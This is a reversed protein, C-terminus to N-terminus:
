KKWAGNSNLKYGDITTDHAMAGSSYFYYWSGNIQKWGTVMRADQPDLYYWNGNILKWGKVRVGSDPDMYYWDSEHKVWGTVMKGSNDFFYWLGDICQWGVLMEGKSNFRYWNGSIEKWGKVMQGSTDLYYWINNLQKWGTVMQGSADFYYWINDIQKWGSAVLKANFTNLYYWNGDIQKWGKIRAGTAPDMYYWDSGHRVWGTVMKGSDDFYYWLNDICQWGTLMEGNSNFRYTNGNLQKWGTVMYGKVDFYFWKGKIQKWCSFPYSGDSYNFWWGNNDQVWKGPKSIEVPVSAYDTEDSNNQKEAIIYVHYDNGWKGPDLSSPLTFVGYSDSGFVGELIGYYIIGANNSNLPKYEKDLILVTVTNAIGFDSGSVTYPICIKIGDSTNVQQVDNASIHLDDDLLTLKYEAGIEGFKNNASSSFLVSSLDINLSPAVGRIDDSILYSSVAGEYTVAGAYYQHLGPDMEGGWGISRLWYCDYKSDYKIHNKVPDFYSGTYNRYGYEPNLVDPVDLLFVYDDLGVTHVYCNALVTGSPYEIGGELVSKHISNREISNFSNNLFETNLFYRIESKEWLYTGPDFRRLFIGSDSDLFMSTGGFRTTFSDLVRFKIPKGDYKGFYVFSGTWESDNNEPVLPDVISSVGLCTNKSNKDSKGVITMVGSSNFYYWSGDICNWGTVMVGSNNFYYWEGEICQWHTVMKGSPDFYYWECNIRNWGTVMEKSFYDFYYWSGNLLYWGWQAFGDSNFYYTEGDITHLGTLRNGNEDIYIRYTQDPEPSRYVTVENWGPKFDEDAFVLAFSSVAILVSILVCVFRKFCKM